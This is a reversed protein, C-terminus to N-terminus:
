VFLRRRHADLHRQGSSLLHGDLYGVQVVVGLFLTGDFITTTLPCVLARIQVKPTGM